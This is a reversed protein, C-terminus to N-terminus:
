NFLGLRLLRLEQAKMEGEGLLRNGGRGKDEASEVALGSTAPSSMLRGELGMERERLSALRERECSRLSFLFGRAMDPGAWGGM